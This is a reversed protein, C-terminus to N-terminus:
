ARGLGAVAYDLAELTVPKALVFDVAPHAGSTADPVEGWGTVLGVLLRPRRAKAAAAVEWGTMAPMVLDTLLLDISPDAEILRLAEGGGGATVVTHGRLALMEALAERVEAEDDVLV